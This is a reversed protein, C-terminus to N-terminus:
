NHFVVGQVPFNQHLNEAFVIRHQLRFVALLRQLKQFRLALIHSQDKQIHHHGDHVAEGEQVPGLRVGLQGGNRDDDGGLVVVLGVFDGGKGVAGRVKHGLGVPGLDNEM